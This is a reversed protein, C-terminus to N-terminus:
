VAHAGGEPNRAALWSRFVDVLREVHTGRSAKFLVVGRTPCLEELLLSFEQGGSVPYFAGAYGGKRLGALVDAGCGGKWFVAQPAAAALAEGLEEHAHRARHGLERMEGMVPLFPLGNERALAGAAELMRRASLPNANYSDDLLLIDGYQQRNFRQEPLRALSFGEEIEQLRLGQSVAVAVIAAVNEAGYAGRFPANLTACMGNAEVQFSGNACSGPGRYVARFPVAPQLADDLLAADGPLAADDPWSAEEPLCASFRLCAVGRGTLEPLLRDVEANLDPYDCSVVALGPSQIYRLLRSKHVAVGLDGLGLTHADGVNLILATDPRLIRGLKDMEGPENIGLEMVWFSADASANLMSIPLGLQNNLNMPNRETFGRVALVQALVEKVTTKGASGTVGIVRALSTDRHAMALRWLAEQVDPVLFVPPLAAASTAASTAFPANAAVPPTAVPRAAAAHAGAATAGSPGAGTEAFPDRAAIIACAGSAAAARAFLHGDTHEGPLCFFLHGPAIKRSDFQAGCPVVDAWPARGPGCGLCSAIEGLNLRM